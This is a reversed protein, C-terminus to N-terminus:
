GGSPLRNLKVVRYQISDSTHCVLPVKTKSLVTDLTKLSIRINEKRAEIAELEMQIALAHEKPFQKRFEDEDLTRYTTVKGEVAYDPDERIDFKLARDLLVKRTTQLLSLLESVQEIEADIEAIRSPLTKDAETLPEDPLPHEILSKAEDRPRM